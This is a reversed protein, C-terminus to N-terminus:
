LTHRRDGRQFGPLGGRLGRGCAIVKILEGMEAPSLLLNAAASARLYAASGPGLRALRDLLGANLLFQAQGTYGIVDLGADFAADAIATFDIHATLDTLGPLFFPDDFAHHRYHSMLTGASRQPHYFEARPFGYDIFLLAGQELVTGLSRMLGPGALSIESLYAEGAVPLVRAAEYLPGASLPRDQWAFTNGAVAVGREFLGNATWCVRHVPLADLVENGIAIGTLRAPLQDLWTVRALWDPAEAAIRERQRARLEPSVELILYHRPLAGREALAALLDVALRGSGAGLELIDGGTEALAAAVPTALTQAFLPTLEPATVFDGAAGFKRAGASYYGLGPAYLALTMYHAFDIWGGAAAIEARLHTVVAASHARAETSPEPLASMPPQAKISALRNVRRRRDAVARLCIHGRKGNGDEAGTRGAHGTSVGQETEAQRRYHNFTAGLWAASLAAIKMGIQPQEAGRRFGAFRHGRAHGRVKALQREADVGFSHHGGHPAGGGAKDEIQGPRACRGRKGDGGDDEAGAHARAGGGPQGGEGPLARANEDAREGADDAVAEAGATDEDEAAAVVGEIVGQKESFAAVADDNAGPGAKRRTRVELSGASSTGVDFQARM